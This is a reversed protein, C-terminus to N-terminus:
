HEADLTRAFAELGDITPQKTLVGELSARVSELSRGGSLAAAGWLMGARNGSVCHVVVLTGPDAEDLLRRLREAQEPDVEASSVPLNQYDLGLARAAEAEEPAGEVETRLDVVLVEGGHSARLKDLDVLGAVVVSDAVRAAYNSFDLEDAQLPGAVLMGFLWWGTRGMLKM